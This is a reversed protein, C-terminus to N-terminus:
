ARGTATWATAQLTFPGTPLLEACRTRVRECQAPELTALYAGAPGVGQTYPHWWEDTGTYAASVTLTTQAADHLGARTFLEVLHADRAGPLDSEDPAAPDLDRVARWFVSVPGRGGHHDWVCAAVLGGPRAVRAMEAIGADPDAMFHVVLQAVVLDFEDDAFPL